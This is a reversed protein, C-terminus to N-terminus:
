KGNVADQIKKAADNNQNVRDAIKKARALGSNEDIIYFARVTLSKGDPNTRYIMFSRKLDGNFENQTKAAVNAIYTEFEDEGTANAQETLTAALMARVEQAYNTQADLLLRKEAMSITKADQITHEQGRKTGGFSPETELYYSILASELPISSTSEWKQKKLEKAQKKAMKEAAKRYETQQKTYEKSQAFATASMGFVALLAIMLVKKM